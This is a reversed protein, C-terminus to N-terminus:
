DQTSEDFLSLLRKQVDSNQLHQLLKKKVTVMDDLAIKDFDSPDLPESGCFLSACILERWSDATWSVPLLAARATKKNRFMEIIIAQATLYVMNSEPRCAYERGDIIM